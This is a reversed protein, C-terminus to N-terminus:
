QEIAPSTKQASFGPMGERIRASFATDDGATKARENILSRAKLEEFPLSHDLSGVEYGLRDIYGNVLIRWDWRRKRVYPQTHGRINTTCNSTLANYWEPRSRLRNVQKLYDLFVPRALAPDASLRYLYVQEGRYNTRLRILDREDAVVYTLEYQRFFGRIASYAEDKTKRAEISFCVHDGGGFDFSLMTHAILPSGWYVLFFDVAQLNALDFTKDYYHVAYDTESRYDCNRINHITVTDGNIDAYPLVALDPQWNRNNSPPTLLFWVVVAAFAGLFILHALWAPRVRLFVFLLGLAFVAAAAARLWATPLNSFYIAMTSWVALAILIVARAIRGALRLLRRPLSPTAIFGM